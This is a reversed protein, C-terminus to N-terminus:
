ANYHAWRAVAAKIDATQTSKDGGGLLIVKEAGDLGYYIRYGPGKDIRLEWVGDELSKCDGFNGLEVRKLRMLIDTQGKLDRLGSFWDQYPDKGPESQYHEIKRPTVEM